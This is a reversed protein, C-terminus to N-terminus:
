TETTPTIDTWEVDEITNEDLEALADEFTTETRVTADIAQLRPLEYPLLAKALELRESMPVDPDRMRELVLQSPRLDGDELLALFNKGSRRQTKAEESPGPASRVKPAKPKSM